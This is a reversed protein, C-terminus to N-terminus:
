REQSKRADNQEKWKDWAKMEQLVENYYEALKKSGQESM